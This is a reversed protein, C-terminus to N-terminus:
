SVGFKKAAVEHNLDRSALVKNLHSVMAIDLMDPYARDLQKLDHIVQEVPHCSSSTSDSQRSSMGNLIYREILRSATMVVAVMMDNVQMQLISEHLTELFKPKGALLAVLPINRVINDPDVNTDNEVEDEV